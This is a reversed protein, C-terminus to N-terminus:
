ILSPYYEAFLPFVPEPHFMGADELAARSLEGMRAPNALCFALLDALSKPILNVQMHRALRSYAEPNPEYALGKGKDGILRAAVLCTM